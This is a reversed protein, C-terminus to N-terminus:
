KTLKLFLRDVLLTQDKLPAQGDKKAKDIVHQNPTLAGREMLYSNQGNTIEFTKYDGVGKPYFFIQFKEGACIENVNTIKISDKIIQKIEAFKEPELVLQDNIYIETIEGVRTLITVKVSPAVFLHQSYVQYSFSFVFILTVVLRLELKM